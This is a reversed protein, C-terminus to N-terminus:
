RTLIALVLTALAIIGMMALMGWKVAAVEPTETYQRTIRDAQLENLTDDLWTM